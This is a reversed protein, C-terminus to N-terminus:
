RGDDGRARGEPERGSSRDLAERLGKERESATGAGAADRGQTKPKGLLEAAEKELALNKEAAAAPADRTEAVPRSRQPEQREPTAALRRNTAEYHEQLGLTSLRHKREQGDASKVVIGVTKGRQYFSIGATEALKALDAFCQAREFMQHMSAKAAEKDSPQGTRARMSQERVNTKLKERRREADYIKTQALEPYREIAFRETKKQAEAFEAKSLRARETKGAPNASLMLHLHIHDTDLHVVGYALQDPARERLYEQGVDAVMRYLEDGEATHGASFSLIEHYLVNGNKRERMLEANKEFEAVVEAEGAREGGYFNNWLVARGHGDALGRNMYGALAAFPSGSKRGTGTLKGSAKRSLSKIIM